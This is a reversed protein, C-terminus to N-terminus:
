ECYMCITVIGQNWDIGWHEIPFAQAYIKGCESLDKADIPRIM